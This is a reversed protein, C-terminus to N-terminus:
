FKHLCLTYLIVNTAVMDMERNIIEKNFRSKVVDLARSNKDVIDYRTQKIQNKEHKRIMKNANSTQRKKMFKPHDKRLFM